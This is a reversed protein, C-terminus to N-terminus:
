RPATGSRIQHSPRKSLSRRPGPNRITICRCRTEGPAATRQRCSNRGFPGWAAASSGQKTPQRLRYDPIRISTELSRLTAPISQRSTRLRAQRMASSSPGCGPRSRRYILRRRKNLRDSQFSRGCIRFCTRPRYKWLVRWGTCRRCNRIRSTRNGIVPQGNSIRYRIATSGLGNPCNMRRCRAPTGFLSSDTGSHTRSHVGNWPNRYDRRWSNLRAPCVVCQRGVANHM